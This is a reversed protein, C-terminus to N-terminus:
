VTRVPFDGAQTSNLPSTSGPRHLNPTCLTGSEAEDALRNLLAAKAKDPEALALRRYRVARAHNDSTSM